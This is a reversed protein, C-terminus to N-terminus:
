GQSGFGSEWVKIELGLIKSVRIAPCAATQFERRRSRAGRRVRRYM